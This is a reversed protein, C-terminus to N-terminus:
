FTMAITKLNLSTNTIGCTLGIDFNVKRNQCILCVDLREKQTM